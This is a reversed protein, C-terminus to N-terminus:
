RIGIGSKIQSLDGISVLVCVVVCCCAIGFGPTPYYLMLRTSVFLRLCLLLMLRRRSRGHWRAFVDRECLEAVDGCMQAAMADLIGLNGQDTTMRKGFGPM